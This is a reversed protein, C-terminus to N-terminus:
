PSEPRNVLYDDVIIPPAFDQENEVDWAAERWKKSLATDKEFSDAGTEYCHSLFLCASNNGHEAAVRILHLAFKKDRTGGEGKLLMTGANWMSDVYGDEVAALYWYLAARLNEEGGAQALKAALQNQAVCDGSEALSTLEAIEDENVTMQGKTARTPMASAAREPFM